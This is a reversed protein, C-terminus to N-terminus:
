FTNGMAITVKLAYILVRNSQYHLTIKV